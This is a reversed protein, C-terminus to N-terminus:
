SGVEEIEDLKNDKVFKNRVETYEEHATTVEKLTEDAHEYIDPLKKELFRDGLNINEAEIQGIKKLVSTQSNTLDELERLIKDMMALKERKDM